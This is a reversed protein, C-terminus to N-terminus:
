GYINGRINPTAFQVIRALIFAMLQRLASRPKVMRYTTPHSLCALHTLWQGRSWMSERQHCVITPLVVDKLLLSKNLVKSFLVAGERQSEPFPFFFHSVRAKHSSCSITPSLAERTKHSSTSSFKGIKNESSFPHRPSQTSSHHRKVTIGGLELCDKICHQSLDGLLQCM